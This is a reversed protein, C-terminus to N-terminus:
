RNSISIDVNGYQQLDAKTLTQKLERNVDGLRSKNLEIKAKQDDEWWERPIEMVYGYRGQGLSIRRYKGMHSPDKSRESTDFDGEVLTYGAKQFMQIRHGSTVEQGKEIKDEVVRRVYGPREPVMIRKQAAIPVRKPRNARSTDNLPAGIPATVQAVRDTAIQPINVDNNDSNMKKQLHNKNKQQKNM